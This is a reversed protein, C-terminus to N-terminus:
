NETSYLWVTRCEPRIEHHQYTDSLRKCPLFPPARSSLCVRFGGLTPPSHSSLGYLPKQCCLLKRKKKKKQSSCRKQVACKLGAHVALRPSPVYEPRESWNRPAVRGEGRNAYMAKSMNRQMASSTEM